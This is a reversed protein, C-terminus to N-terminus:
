GADLGKEIGDIGAMLMASFALYPNAAADPCRFEVGSRRRRTRTCRSGSARRATASRTCSTSRRRTAPCSGATRTRRRRASPSCRRRTCSCARRRLRPRAALAGRLGVQRGDAAHGGELPVPAHAHGLRQRRLDAEAHLDSGQRGRARREQRRVQLDHGSRGHPDPDPLPPRDRVSRGLRGRPPPVRVPHRAARADLVMAPACTTCRTTRRPRSTARRRASRTASGPSAPTGTARPPTSQTTRATRASTTALGRRLRLVRVRPRHLLHRRHRDRPPVGRRAQRRRRPDRTTAARPHDPRRDRLDAVADAGRHVPRPDRTAPDPMLLM